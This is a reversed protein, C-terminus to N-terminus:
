RPCMDHPDTRFVHRNLKAAGSSSTKLSLSPPGIVTRRSSARNPERRRTMANSTKGYPYRAEIASEATRDRSRHTFLQAAIAVGRWIGPWQVYVWPASLGVVTATSTAMLAARRRCLSGAASPLYSTASSITPFEDRPEAVKVNYM